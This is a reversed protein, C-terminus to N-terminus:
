EPDLVLWGESGQGDRHFDGSVASEWCIFGSEGKWGQGEGWRSFRSGEIGSKESPNNM